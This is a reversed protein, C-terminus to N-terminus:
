KVLRDVFFLIRGEFQCLVAPKTRFIVLELVLDGNKFSWSTTYWISCHKNSLRCFKFLGSECCIYCSWFIKLKSVSELISSGDTMCRVARGNCRGTKCNRIPVAASNIICWVSFVYLRETAFRMDTLKLPITRNGASKIPNIWTSLSWKFISTHLLLTKGFVDSTGVFLSIEYYNSTFSDKCPCWLLVHPIPPISGSM